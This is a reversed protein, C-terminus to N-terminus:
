NWKWWRPLWWRQTKFSYDFAPLNGMYGLSRRAISDTFQLYESYGTLRQSDTAPDQLLTELTEKDLKEPDLGIETLRENTLSPTYTGSYHTWDVDGYAYSYAERAFKLVDYVQEETLMETSTTTQQTTTGSKYNKRKKSM